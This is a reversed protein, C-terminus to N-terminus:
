KSHNVTFHVFRFNNLKSINKYSAFCDSVITTGPKIKAKICDILTQETRNPVAYMFVEKSDRSIGGFIWQPPLVRGTNNKRKSICTEDIEVTEGERGIAFDM